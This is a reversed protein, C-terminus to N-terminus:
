SNKWRSSWTHGLRAAARDEAEAIAEGRAFLRDSASPREDFRGRPIHPKASQWSIPDPAHEGIAIMLAEAFDPSRGILSKVAAKDEIVTRGHADIAYNLAALEALMEDSLGMIEGKQFRERLFWYRQAKLNAFREPEASARGVNLGEVTVGCESRISETFFYGLGASDVRVIQLRDAWKRIFAVVPGRADADTWVGVDLISGAACATAVTRDRGPGAPDVGIIIHGGPDVASRQAAELLSLPILANSSSSPFEGLVRSQWLPSNENSGNFWEGFRERTWRRATLYQAVNEDLAADPLALLDELTLGALNPTDFASIGFTTWAARNRRFADYFYGSSVTPNGLLLLHSDGSALIGEIAPWFTPDIGTAEDCVILLDRAHHGQLRTPENTSLGIILNDPGFRIETQNLVTTPLRYRARALLSHIESWLVTRTTLWGPALTIVRSNRHRAAFWLSALAAAYTKGSAHCARVAVRREREVARLIEKQKEWLNAGFITEAFRVPDSIRPSSNAM